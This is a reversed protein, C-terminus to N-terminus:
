HKLVLATSLEFIGIRVQILNAWKRVGFIMFSM